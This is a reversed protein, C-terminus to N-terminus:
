VKPARAYGAVQVGDRRTYGAVQGNSKQEPKAAARRRSRKDQREPTSTSATQTENRETKTKARASMFAGTGTRRGAMQELAAGRLRSNQAKQGEEHAGKLANGAASGVAASAVWGAPGLALAGAAVAMGAGGLRTLKGENETHRDAKANYRSRVAGPQAAPTTSPTSPADFNTQLQAAMDRRKAESRSGSKPMVKGKARDAMYDLAAGRNRGDHYQKFRKDAMNNMVHGAGLWAAGALLNGTAGQVVAAGYSALGGIAWMGAKIGNLNGQTRARSGASVGAM